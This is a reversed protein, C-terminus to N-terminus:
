ILRGIHKPYALLKQCINGPMGLRRACVNKEVNRFHVNSEFHLIISCSYRGTRQTVTREPKEAYAFGCGLFGALLAAMVQARRLRVSQM